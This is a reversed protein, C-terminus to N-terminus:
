KMLLEMRAPLVKQRNCEDCCIGNNTFPWANNGYGTFEKGCLCCVKKEEEKEM